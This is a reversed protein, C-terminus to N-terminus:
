ARTTRVAANGSKASPTSGNSSTPLIVGCRHCRCAGTGGDQLGGSTPIEAKQELLQTLAAPLGTKEAHGMCMDSLRKHEPANFKKTLLDALMDKTSLTAMVITGDDVLQRIKHYRIHVHRLKRTQPNICSKFNSESDTFLLTPPQPFGLEELMTRLSLLSCSAQCAALANSYGDQRKNLEKLRENEEDTLELGLAANASARFESECTSLATARQLKSAYYLAGGSGLFLAIGSTSRYEDPDGCWDADSMAYLIVNMGGIKLTKKSTARLYRLVHRVARWAKVDPCNCFKALVGIAYQIDLRTICAYMVSGLMSRYPWPPKAGNEYKVADRRSLPPGPAMPTDVPKMHETEMNFTRLVRHLYNEQSLEMMRKERDRTVKIGLCYELDGLDKMKFETEMQSLFLDPPENTAYVVDDVVLALVTYYEDTIRYMLCPDLVSATFGISELHSSLKKWFCRPSQPLGYLPVNCRAVAGPQLRHHFKRKEESWGDPREDTPEYGDPVYVYIEEDLDGHLFATEVDYQRLNLNLIAALALVLKVTASRAAPAYTDTYHISEVCLHGLIVLRAKFRSILGQADCKVRLVYKARLIKNNIPVSRRDVWTFTGYKDLSANEKQIAGRWDAANRGAYAAKVSKPIKVTDAYQKTQVHEAPTGTNYCSEATAWKRWSSTMTFCAHVCGLLNWAITAGSDIPDVHHFNDLEEQAALSFHETLGHTQDAHTHNCEHLNKNSLDQEVVILPVLEEHFLEEGDGDEYVVKWVPRGTDEDTTKDVVTGNFWGANFKKRM